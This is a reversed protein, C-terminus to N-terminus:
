SATERAYTDSAHAFRKSSDGIAIFFKDDLEKLLRLSAARFWNIWCHSENACDVDAVPRLATRRLANNSSESRV